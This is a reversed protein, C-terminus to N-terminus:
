LLAKQIKSCATSLLRATGHGYRCPLPRTCTLPSIYNLQQQNHLSSSSKSEVLSAHTHKGWQDQELEIAISQWLKQRDRHQAITWLYSMQSTSHTHQPARSATPKVPGQHLVPFTQQLNTSTFTHRICCFTQPWCERTVRRSPVVRSAGQPPPHTSITCVTNATCM